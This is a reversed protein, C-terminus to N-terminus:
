AREESTFLEPHKARKHQGLGVDTVIKGCNPCAIRNHIPKKFRPFTSVHRERTRPYGCAPRIYEGTQWDLIGEVMMDAIDGM